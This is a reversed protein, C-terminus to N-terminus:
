FNFRPGINTDRGDKRTQNEARRDSCQLIYKNIQILSKLWPISDLLTGKMKQFKIKIDERKKALKMSYPIM